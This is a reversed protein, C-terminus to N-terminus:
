HICYPRRAGLPGLQLISLRDGQWTPGDRGAPLAKADPSIMHQLDQWERSTAGRLWKSQGNSGKGKEGHARRGAKWEGLDNGPRTFRDTVLASTPAPFGRMKWTRTRGQGAPVHSIGADGHGHEQVGDHLM